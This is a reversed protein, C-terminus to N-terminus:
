YGGAGGKSPATKIETGAPSAAWWIGQVGQGMVDGSASDSAFTYIPLGNVTIQFKSGDPITAVTGTIGKIKPTASTSTIAPWIAACAGTCASTMEGKTDKDFFYATHGQGDVIVTGLSTSATSADM